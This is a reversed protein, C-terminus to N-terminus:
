EGYLAAKCGTGDAGVELLVEKGGLGRGRRCGSEEGRMTLVDWMDEGGLSWGVHFWPLVVQLVTSDQALPSVPGLGLEGVAESAASVLWPMCDFFAGQPLSALPAKAGLVSVVIAGGGVIRAAGIAAKDIEPM